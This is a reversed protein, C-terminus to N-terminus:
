SEGRIIQYLHRGIEHYIDGHCPLPHCYCVLDTEYLMLMEEITFYGSDLQDLVYRRFKNLVEERTGDRGIHFPNGYKSPRGIFLAGPPVKGQRKNIIRGKM